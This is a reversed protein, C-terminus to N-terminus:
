PPSKLCVVELLHPHAQGGPLALAQLVSIEKKLATADTTRLTKVAVKRSEGQSTLKGEYVSGYAGEGLLAGPLHGSLQRERSVAKQQPM